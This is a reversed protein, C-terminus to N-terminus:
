KRRPSTRGRAAARAPSARRPPQAAAARPAGGFCGRLMDCTAACERRELTEWDMRLLGFRPAFGQLRPSAHQPNM